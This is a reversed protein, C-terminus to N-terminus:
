AGVRGAAAREIWGIVVQVVEPEWGALWVMIREDYAGLEVRATALAVALREANTRDMLGREYTARYADYVPRADVMAEANTAYPGHVTHLESM